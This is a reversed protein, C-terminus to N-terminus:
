CFTVCEESYVTRRIESSFSVSIFSKMLRRTDSLFRELPSQSEISDRVHAHINQIVSGDGRCLRTCRRTYWCLVYGAACWRVAILASVFLCRLGAYRAIERTLSGQLSRETPSPPKLNGVTACRIVRLAPASDMEAYHVCNIAGANYLTAFTCKRQIMAVHIYIYMRTYMEM